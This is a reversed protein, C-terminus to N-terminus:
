MLPAFVTILVRILNEGFKLKLDKEDCLKCDSEILKDLQEIIDHICKTKYMAVGCEYHHIFSRYDMNVTGVVAQKGDGVVTKAHIFGDKYMYVHAGYAKLMAVTHKTVSFVPKKDPIEPIIIKVDVGRLLASKIAETMNTDVVFYPTTIYLTKRASNIIELYANEGIHETDVPYPSDGFPLILGRKVFDEHEVLFNAEDLKEKGAINYLSIFMKVFEDTAEGEIFVGNDLWRGYPHTINVYEDALNLGGTFAKKGDIVVIKRHDRNNHLASVIPLFRRFVKANIGAKVLKKRFGVPVKKISGVDDYMLYVKVGADMREKLVSYIQRWLEGDEIIFYEIFVYKQATALEELLRGAYTEGDPLFECSTKDSPKAGYSAAVYRILNADDDIVSVDIKEHKVSRKLYKKNFSPIRGFSLYIIIGAYPFLCFLVTWPIKYVAPGDKTMCYIFMLIGVIQTFIMFWIYKTTMAAMVAVTLAVQLVIALAVLIFRSASLLPSRVKKEIEVPRFRAVKKKNKRKAM